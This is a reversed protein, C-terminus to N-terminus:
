ELIAGRSLWVGVVLAAITMTFAMQGPVGVVKLLYNFVAAGVANIVYMLAVEKLKPM